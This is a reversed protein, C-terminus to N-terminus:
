EEENIGDNTNEYQMETAWIDMDVDAMFDTNRKDYEMTGWAKRQHKGNHKWSRTNRM